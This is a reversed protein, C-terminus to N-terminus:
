IPVNLFLHTVISLWFIFHCQHALQLGVVPTETLGVHAKTVRWLVNSHYNENAVNSDSKLFYLYWFSHLNPGSNSSATM